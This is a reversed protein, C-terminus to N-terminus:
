IQSLIEARKKEYDEETILDHDLLKKLDELRAAPDKGVTSPPTPKPPPPAPPTPALSPPITRKLPYFLGLVAIVIGAVILILGLAQLWGGSFLYVTLGALLLGIGLIYWTKNMKLEM